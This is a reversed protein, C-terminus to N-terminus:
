SEASSRRNASEFGPLRIQMKKREQWKSCSSLFSRSCSTMCRMYKTSNLKNVPNENWAGAAAMLRIIWMRIRTLQLWLLLTHTHTAHRSYSFQLKSKSCAEGAARVYIDVYIYTCVELTITKMKKSWIIEDVFSSHLSSSYIIYLPCECDLIWRRM